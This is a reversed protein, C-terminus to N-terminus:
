RIPWSMSWNRLEELPKMVHSCGARQRQGVSAVSLAPTELESDRASMVPQDRADLDEISYSIDCLKSAERGHLLSFFKEVAAGIKREKWVHVCGVLLVTMVQIALLQVEWQM